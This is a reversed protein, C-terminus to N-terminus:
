LSAEKKTTQTKHKNTRVVAAGTAVAGATLVCIILFYFTGIKSKPVWFWFLRAMGHKRDDYWAESVDVGDRKAVVRSLNSRRNLYPAYHFRWKSQLGTGLEAALVQGYRGSSRIGTPLPWGPIRREYEYAIHFTRNTPPGFFSSPNAPFEVDLGLPEGASNCRLEAKFHMGFFNTGQVRNGEWRLTGLRQSQLGMHMVWMGRILASAVTPYTNSTSWAVLAEPSYTDTVFTRNAHVCWFTGDYCGAVVADPTLHQSLLNSLSGATKCFFGNTQYRFEVYCEGMREDEVYARLSRITPPHELFEKFSRVSESDGQAAVPHALLQGVLFVVWCLWRLSMQSMQM